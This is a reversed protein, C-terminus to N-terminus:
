LRFKYANMMAHKYAVYLYSKLMREEHLSTAVVSVSSEGM